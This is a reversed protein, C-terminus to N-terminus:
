GANLKHGSTVAQATATNRVPVELAWRYPARSKARGNHAAMHHADVLYGAHDYFGIVVDIDVNHMHFALQSRPPMDFLLGDVSIDLGVLGRAWQTPTRAVLVDLTHDGLMVTAADFPNAANFAAQIAKM